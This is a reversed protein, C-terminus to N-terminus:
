SRQKDHKRFEKRNDQGWGHSSSRFPQTIQLIVFEGWVDGSRLCGGVEGIARAGDVPGIRIPLGTWSRAEAGVRM